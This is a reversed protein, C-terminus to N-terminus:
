KGRRRLSTNGTHRGRFPRRTLWLDRSYGVEFVAVASRSLILTRVNELHSLAEEVRACKEYFWLALEEVCLTEIFRADLGKLFCLYLPNITNMLVEDWTVNRLVVQHMSRVRRGAPDVLEVVGDIHDRHDASRTKLKVKRVGVLFIPNRFPPLTDKMGHFSDCCSFTVSCSSPYSLINYLSLYFDTNTYDTYVCLHPLHVVDHNRQTYFTNNHSTELEELLPCNRLFDLLADMPEEGLTWVGVGLRTIDPASLSLLNIIGRLFLTKLAPLSLRITENLGGTRFRLTKLSPATRV